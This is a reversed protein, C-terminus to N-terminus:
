VSGSSHRGDSPWHDHRPRQKRKVRLLNVGPGEPSDDGPLLTISTNAQSTADTTDGTNQIGTTVNAANANGVDDFNGDTPPGFNQYPFQPIIPIIFGVGGNQEPGKNITLNM